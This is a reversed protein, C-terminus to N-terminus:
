FLSVNKASSQCAHMNIFSAFNLVANIVAVNKRKGRTKYITSIMPQSYHTLLMIKGMTQPFLIILSKKIQFAM